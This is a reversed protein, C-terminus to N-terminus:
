VLVQLPSSIHLHKLVPNNSFPHQYAILASYGQDRLFPAFDFTSTLGLKKDISPKPQAQAEQRGKAGHFGNAGLSKTSTMAMRQIAFRRNQSM